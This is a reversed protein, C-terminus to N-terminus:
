KERQARKRERERVEDERCQRKEETSAERSKRSSNRVNEGERV